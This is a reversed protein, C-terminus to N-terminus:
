QIYGQQMLMATDQLHLYATTCLITSVVAVISVLTIFIIVKASQNKRVASTFIILFIILVLAALVARISLDAVIQSAPELGVTGM